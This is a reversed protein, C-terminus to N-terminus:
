FESHQLSAALCYSRFIMHLLHHSLGGDSNFCSVFFDANHCCESWCVVIAKRFKAKVGETYVLVLAMYLFVAQALTWMFVVLLFYHTFVAFTACAGPYDALEGGIIFSVIVGTWASCLQLLIQMQQQRRLKSCTSVCAYTCMYVCM